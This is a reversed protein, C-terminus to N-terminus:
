EEPIPDAAIASVFEQQYIRQDGNCGFMDQILSLDNNSLDLGCNQQIWRSFGSMTVYGCRYTDMDDFIAKPDVQAKERM